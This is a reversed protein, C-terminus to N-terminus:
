RHEPWNYLHHSRIYALVPPPLMAPVEGRALSERVQSSSVPLKLDNLYTVTRGRQNRWLGLHADYRYSPDIVRLIQGIDKEDLSDRRVAILNVAALLDHVRHWNPLDVLSDAGILFFYECDGRSQRLAEITHVTYSPISLEAEIRSCHMREGEAALAAELMAVRDAFTVAPRGKHPPQPAPIFLIEDLHCRNLVHRALELHGQPVPDFTGGFLGVAPHQPPASV